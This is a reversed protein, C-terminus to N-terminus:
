LLKYLVTAVQARTMSDTPHFKGDDSGTLIKVNSLISVYEKAWDAVAASDKFTLEPAAYGKDLLRGIMTVAEQRSITATPNFFVRGDWNASGKTVGLAYMARVGDKAWDAIKDSDAFPLEVASFDETPALYRYLMVAFEQRSINANPKYNGHEDGTTIGVRKLYSVYPNAWHVNGLEDILDPFVPEMSQAVIDFSARALNGSADSAIITVRHQEGDSEPPALTFTGSSYTYTELPAGDYTVRLASMVTGDYDDFYTGTLTQAGEQRTLTLTPADTDTLGAYSLVLQDLFIAGIRETDGPVVLGTIAKAGAPLKLSLQRWGTFDIVASGGSGADTQVCLREGGGDGYVWLNVCDYGSRVNYNVAIEADTGYWTAYDMRAAGSGRIVHAADTTHSLMANVGTYTDFLADFRDLARLPEATINVPFERKTEGVSVTLVGTALHKAATFVGDTSVTGVDGTVSWTFNSNDGLVNLHHYVARATLQTESGRSLTLSDVAKGNQLLEISDPKTVVEIKETAYVSGRKAGVTVTGSAPATLINGSVSGRDAAYTIDAKMPIYNTDVATASLTVSTGPLVYKAPVSLAIHDLTGSAKPSAVLFVHNTVARVYGDSPRNVLSIGTDAPNTMVLTTSGGGDLSMASVCGLEVLREATQTLSAGVSYGSARGDITYLLLEGDATLGLATRPAAGTPLGSCVKGDEVLQYLAGVMNTVKNWKEDSATVRVTLKEGKELSLLTETEPLANLNASLVYQGKGVATDTAESLVREVTLTLEGGINLTGGDVSCVVDVGKESTGISHRANFTDDYLFIGYSSQRVYNLAAVSFAEGGEREVTIALEPKGMVTTGDDYFGIAYNANTVSQLVGDTMVCGLPVGTVTDFYDGNIGAVVRYGEVELAKAAATVTTLQTAYDGSRVIPTVSKNPTYVVYNEQRLDSYANSWFTGAHLATGRNVTVSSDLLDDGLAVSAYATLPACALIAALSFSIIKRLYTKM